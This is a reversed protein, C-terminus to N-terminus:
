LAHAAALSRIDVTYRGADEPGRSARIAQVRKEYERADRKRNLKRLVQAYLLDTNAVQPHDTGLSPEIIALSRAVLREADAYRRVRFDVDGLSGLLLGTLPHKPGLGSEALGLARELLREAEDYRKLATLTVALNNLAPVLDAPTAELNATWMELVERQLPEADQFRGEALELDALIGMGAAFVRGGAPRTRSLIDLGRRALKRGESYRQWRL